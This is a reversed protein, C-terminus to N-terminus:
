PSVTNAKAAEFFSFQKCALANPALERLSESNVFCAKM